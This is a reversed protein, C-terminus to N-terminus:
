LVDAFYQSLLRFLPWAVLWVVATGVVSLALLSPDPAAGHVLVARFGEVIGTMPNWAFWERWAAPVRELPYVVPTALLWFQLLFPMAFLLDRRYTGVAAVGMAVGLALLATLGALPGLWLWAWGPTGGLWLLAAMLLLLAVALDVLSVMVAALPFVERVVAMKKLLSANGGISPGGRSVANAFFTWPVLGALAFVAYPTDGTDITFVGRLLFFFALYGLPQVVAWVPGLLSKRYQGKFEREALALALEWFLRRPSSSPTNM